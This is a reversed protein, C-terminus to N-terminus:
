LYTQIEECNQQNEHKSDSLSIQNRSHPRLIQNIQAESAIVSESSTLSNFSNLGDTECLIIVFAKM